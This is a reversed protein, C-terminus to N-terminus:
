RTQSGGQGGANQANKLIEEGERIVQGTVAKVKQKDVSIEINGNSQSIHIAGAVVLGGVVLGLLLLTRM